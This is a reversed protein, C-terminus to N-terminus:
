CKFGKAKKWTLMTPRGSTTIANSCDTFAVLQVCTGCKTQSEFLIKRVYTWITEQICRKNWPSSVFRGLYTLDLPIEDSTFKHNIRHAHQTAGWEGQSNRLKGSNTLATISAANFYAVDDKGPVEWNSNTVTRKPIYNPRNSIQTQTCHPFRTWWRKVPLLYEHRM